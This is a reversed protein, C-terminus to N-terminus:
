AGDEHFREQEMLWGAPNSLYFRMDTQAQLHGNEEALMRTLFEREMEEVAEKLHDGYFSISRGEFEIGLDLAELDALDATIKPGHKSALERFIGTMEPHDPALAQWGRSWARNSVLEDYITKIRDIHILEDNGLMTFIERGLDNRSAKATRDYFAKGKVEMELAVGLWQEAQLNQVKM